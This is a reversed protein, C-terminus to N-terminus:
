GALRALKLVLMHRREGRRLAKKCSSLLEQTGGLQERTIRVANSLLTWMPNVKGAVTLYSERSLSETYRDLMHQQYKVKDELSLIQGSIMKERKSWARTEDEVKAKIIARM